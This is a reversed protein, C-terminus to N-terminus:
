SLRPPDQPPRRPAGPGDHDGPEDPDEVVQWDGDIVTPGQGSPGRGSPGRGSPEQSGFPSRTGFPTHTAAGMVRVMLGRGLWRRLPPLLLPLAVLDTLYGPILLFLAGISRCTSDFLTDLPMDGRRMREQADRAAALGERQLLSLGVVASLLIGGIAGAWGIWGAVTIVAAIELVPWGILLLPFIWAM